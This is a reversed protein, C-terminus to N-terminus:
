PSFTVETYAFLSWNAALEPLGTWWDVNKERCVM